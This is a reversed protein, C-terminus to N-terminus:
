GLRPVPQDGGSAGADRKINAYQGTRIYVDRRNLAAAHLRVVVEGPGPTPDEVEELRLVEPGGTERQVIARM